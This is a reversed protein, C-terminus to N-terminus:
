EIIKLSKNYAEIDNDAMIKIVKDDTIHYIYKKKRGTKNRGQTHYLYSKNDPDYATWSRLFCLTRDDINKLDCWLTLM